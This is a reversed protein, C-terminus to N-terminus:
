PRVLAGEKNRTSSTSTNVYLALFFFFFSSSFLVFGCTKREGNRVEPPHPLPFTTAESPFLLLLLLAKFPDEAVTVGRRPSSVWNEPRFFSTKLLALFISNALGPEKEPPPRRRPSRRSAADTWRSHFVCTKGRLSSVNFLNGPATICLLHPLFM